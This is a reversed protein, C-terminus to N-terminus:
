RAPGPLFLVTRRHKRTTGVWAAFLTAFAFALLAQGYLVPGAFPPHPGFWNIAQFILLVGILIAPPGVPGNTKKVYWYFAGLTIGLELPIAILPFNWLGLGHMDNGGMLSLDPRHTLWDLLWHSLVVFAGLLAALADRRVWIIVTSFALAWIATGLLSHTYPMHYLDYPVMVTAGPEVRMKEIGFIAFTFFAWDILQAGIFLTALKPARPSIAAAAFAPAFHGIFM